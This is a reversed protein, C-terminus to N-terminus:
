PERTSPRDQPVPSGGRYEISYLRRMERYAETGMAAAEELSEPLGALELAPVSTRSAELLEERYEAPLLDMRERMADMPVGISFGNIIEFATRKQQPSLTVASIYELYCSAIREWHEVELEPNLDRRFGDVWYAFTQPYASLLAARILRIRGMLAPPLESHRPPGIKLDAVKMMRTEGMSARESIVRALVRRHLDPRVVQIVQQVIELLMKGDTVLALKDALTPSFKLIEDRTVGHWIPLITKGTSIERAVLGRLEYEPWRKSLFSPSLVVLGFASEGLGRDISRSLSDGLELTFEDYWVRVGFHALVRALPAVFSEKDESAHSVFVDWTYSSPLSEGTM